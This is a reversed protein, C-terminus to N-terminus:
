KLAEITVKGGKSKPETTVHIAGDNGILSEEGGKPDLLRNTYALLDLVVDPEGYIRYTTKSEEKNEDNFSTFHSICAPSEGEAICAEKWVKIAEIVKDLAKDKKM